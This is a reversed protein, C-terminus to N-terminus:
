VAQSEACKVQDRLNDKAISYIFEAIAEVDDKTFCVYGDIKEETKEETKSDSTKSNLVVALIRGNKFREISASNDLVVIRDKGASNYGETIVLDYEKLYKEYIEDLDDREVRKIFALKTPSSVIVDCCQFIRWSDKGEKDMEFERTHKVVAVKLGKKKLIPIIKTILTTKGSGSNGVFSIIM